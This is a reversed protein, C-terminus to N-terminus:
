RGSSRRNIRAYICKLYSGEPFRVPHDPANATRALEEMRVGAGSSAECIVKFFDHQSVRSSCSAMVFLGGDEVASLSDLALRYYAKLAAPLESQRKAFSPPDVIVLGYQERKQRAKELFSFVDECFTEHRCDKVSPFIRSNIKFITESEELAPRSCDVSAVYTAGARAAYLSFGGNYSFLNLVRKGQGMQGAKLRNDRQDLFFGTKHGHLADAIFHLGNELFEIRGDSSDSLMGDHLGYRKAIRAELDRNLRLIIREPNLVERLAEIYTKIHPIWSETYIKVVASKDYVDNILGPFFDNEGNILRFGNTQNRDFIDTRIKLAAAIREKFMDKGIIASKGHQFVRIRIPSSPDYLGAALFKNNKDFIIALDGASAKPESIKVISEDFLWPHGQKMIKEAAATIHVAIRKTSPTPLKGILEDFLSM